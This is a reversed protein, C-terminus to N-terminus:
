DKTVVLKKTIKNGNQLVIIEYIGSPFDKVNIKNRFLKGRSRVSNEYVLNAFM